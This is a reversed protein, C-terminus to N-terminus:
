RWKKGAWQILIYAGVGVAVLSGLSAGWSFLESSQEEKPIRITGRTAATSCRKQYLLVFERLEAAFREATRVTGIWYGSPDGALFTAWRKKYDEWRLLDSGSFCKAHSAIDYDLSTVLGSVEALYARMESPTWIELLDGLEADLAAGLEDEFDITREGLM